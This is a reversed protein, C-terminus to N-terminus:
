LPASFVAQTLANTAKEFSDGKGERQISGYSFRLLHESGAMSHEIKGPARDVIAFAGGSLADRGSDDLVAEVPLPFGANALAAPTRDYVQYALSRYSSSSPDVLGLQLLLLKVRLAEDYPSRLKGMAGEILEQAEDRAGHALLNEALYAEYYPRAGEREDGQRELAVRRRLLEEPFGALVEGFTPYEVLSDTNRIYLDEVGKLDEALVQRTRRMLWWGRAQLVVRDRLMQVSEAFSTAKTMRLRERKAAVAQALTMMVGVQLDEFNTGIKGLWQRAEAARELFTLAADVDGSLLALRGRALQVLARHEEDNRLPFQAFCRQFDDLAKKADRYRLEDIYLLALNLSPLVHECGDRMSTSRLWSVEAENESFTEKYVEGANNLPTAPQGADGLSMEYTIAQRFVQLAQSRQGQMSLLIGLMNLTRGPEAGAMAGARAVKTAEDVKGTKMLVWARTGPYWDGYYGNRTFQDLIELAGDYNDLDLRNNALLYLLHGHEIRQEAASYPPPGWREEFLEEARKIYKLALRFHGVVSSYYSALLIHARYQTPDKQLAKLLKTRADLYREDTMLATGEAILEAASKGADNDETLQEPASHELPDFPDAQDARAVGPLSMWLLWALGFACLRTSRM